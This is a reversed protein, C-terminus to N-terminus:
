DSDMPVFRDGARVHRGNVYDQWTMRKGGAPKLELIALERDSAQVGMVESIRGCDAPAAAPSARGEYPVARALTVAEDRTGDESRFRCVAGPWSWLGCIRRALEHAPRAFDIRGDTKKLKPAHSVKAPDQPTGPTKPDAELRQFVERVADCGIRALRDHLEDATEDPAIATRRQALIPGADMQAVIRFLTVGSEAAGQIIAWQIPAAGRFAPLRSAHLNIMGAPFAELLAAGFKQGYAAVYGIDANLAKLEAIVGPTNVDAPTLVPVGSELAIQKVPTASPERGRGRVKDPQTVASVIEHGDNLISRFTPVAFESSGFFVVHM